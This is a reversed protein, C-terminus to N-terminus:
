SKRILSVSIINEYLVCMYVYLMYVYIFILAYLQIYVITYNDYIQIVRRSSGEARRLDDAQRRRDSAGPTGTYVHISKHKRTKTITTKQTKENQNNTSKHKRQKTIGM